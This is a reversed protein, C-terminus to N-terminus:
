GIMDLLTGIMEDQTKLAKINAEYGRQSLSMEPIERALDVNSLERQSGDSEEIIPGPTEVTKTNLRPLGNKDEVITARTEKFADTNVNAVNHASVSLKRSFAALASLSSSIGSIM